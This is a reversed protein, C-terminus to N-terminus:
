ADEVRIGHERWARKLRKEDPKHIYFRRYPAYIDEMETDSPFCFLLIFADKEEQTKLYAIFNPLETLRRSNTIVYEQAEHLTNFQQDLKLTWNENRAIGFCNTGSPSTLIRYVKFSMTQTSFIFFFVVLDIFFFRNKM